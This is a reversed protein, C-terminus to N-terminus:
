ARHSQTRRSISPERLLHESDTWPLLALSAIAIRDILRPEAETSVRVFTAPAAIAGLVCLTRVYFNM